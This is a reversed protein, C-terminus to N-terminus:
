IDFSIYKDFLDTREIKVEDWKGTIKILGFYLFFRHFLRSNFCSEKFKNEVNNYNFAKFYKEAYFNIDKPKDGFLYLLYLIYIYSRNGLEEDEFGDLYALNFKTGYTLLIHELNNNNKSFQKGKKTIFIRNNAKRFIGSLQGIIKAVHIANSDTEKSLKSIGVEIDYQTLIKKSYIEKIVKVPLNGTATLKLGKDADIQNIIEGILILFPIDKNQELSHKVNFLSNENQYYFIQHMQAPSLGCFDDLPMNNKIEVLKDFDM